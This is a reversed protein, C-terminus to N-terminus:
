ARIRRFLTEVIVHFREPDDFARAALMAGYVTAMFAQAEVKPSAELHVTGQEV